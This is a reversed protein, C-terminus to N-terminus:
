RALSSDIFRGLRSIAEDFRAPELILSIALYGDREMDFFYGPQVLVHESELIGLVTAEEDRHRPYELLATWGGECRLVRYPSDPGCFRDRLSALNRQLRAQVQGAYRDADPLLLRLANMAPAGASLFADAIIDLRRAADEVDRAPGSLRIWGLKLQPLGMLKSMGDLAFTLCRDEGAIRSAAAHGGAATAQGGAAARNGVVTHGGAATVQGGAAARNGAVTHGDAATAQGGAGEVLYPFFVEDAIIAMGLRACLAAIADREGPHIYSGTPNNPNILVVARASSQVAVEEFNDLDISWGDPHRYELRYPQARVADIAALHDFLPYGPKPVLVTDGPSCLLRFLWSYAESTSSCLWYDDPSGGFRSALSQRAAPLGRPHPSYVLNEAGSLAGPLDPPAFGQRTPNSDSLNIIDTGGASLRAALTTLANDASAGPIRDPFQMCRITGPAHRRPM